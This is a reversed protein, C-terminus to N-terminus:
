AKARFGGVWYIIACMLLFLVIGEGGIAFGWFYVVSGGFLLLLVFSLVLLNM